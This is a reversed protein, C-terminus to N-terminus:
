SYSILFTIRLFYSTILLLFYHFNNKFILFGILFLFYPFNNKFLGTIIIKRKMQVEYIIKVMCYENNDSLKQVV